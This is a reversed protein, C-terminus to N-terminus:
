AIMQEFQAETLISVGLSRAKDLKSGAKEGVVLYTTNKSISSGATGGNAEIAEMIQNRTYRVLKGTVVITKGALPAQGQSQEEVKEPSVGAKKLKTMISEWFSSHFFKYISAATVAGIDKVSALSAETAKTINELSKFHRALRKSTGEGVYPITLGHLFKQLPPSKRNQIAAVLKAASKRGTHPLSMFNEETLLYLDAFDTVLGSDVLMQAVHEGLGVMDASERSAYFAIRDVKQAPCGPNYCRIVAAKGKEREIQLLGNCAPCKRPPRIVKGQTNPWTVSVVKPIIKGAKKVLVTDGIQINLRDIEDLNHLTSRRVTTGDIEVPALEAVPTCVGTKGVQWTVNELVTNGEYCEVKFAIEWKPETSTSGVLERLAFDNLKVVLGDTEYDVQATIDIEESYARDCFRVVEESTMIIHAYDSLTLQSTEFGTRKMEELFEVQTKTHAPYFEPSAISHALFSLPRKACEKPDLLRMAGATTGRPNAYKGNLRENWKRFASNKMYVEGRIEVRQPMNRGSFSLRHPIGQITKALALVEEGIGGNGRTVASVLRGQEYILTLSCGDVKYEITWGPFGLKREQFFSEVKKLYDKLEETSYVNAISLMPVIHQAKEHGSLPEIGIRQTPSNVHIHHPHKEELLKLERLLKDFQSDTVGSPEGRRYLDNYRNLDVTLQHIREQESYQSATIVVIFEKHYNIFPIGSYFLKKM